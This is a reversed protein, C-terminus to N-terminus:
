STRIELIFGEKLSFQHARRPVTPMSVAETVRVRDGASGGCVANWINNICVASAFYSEVTRSGLVVYEARLGPGQHYRVPPELCDYGSRLYRRETLWEGTRDRYIWWCKASAADTYGRRLLPDMRVLLNSSRARRLIKMLLRVYRHSLVLARTGAKQRWVSASTNQPQRRDNEHQVKVSVPRAAVERERLHAKNAWVRVADLRGKM